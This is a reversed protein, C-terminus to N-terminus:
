RIIMDQGPTWDRKSLRNAASAMEAFTRKQGSQVLHAVAAHRATIWQTEAVQRPLENAVHRDTVCSQNHNKGSKRACGYTASWILMASLCIDDHSIGDIQVLKLRIDNALKSLDIGQRDKGIVPLIASFSQEVGSTTSGMCLAYRCIVHSLQKTQHDVNAVRYNRVSLISSRWSSLNDTGSSFRKVALPKFDAFELFLQNYDLEFVTSIQQLSERVFSQQGVLKLDFAGFATLIEWSPFEASISELVLRVWAVMRSLCRDIIEPQLRNGGFVRMEKKGHLAIARPRRMEQIAYETYTGVLSLCHRKTFLLDIRHLYKSIVEPVAAVDYNEQDFFRVVVASEDGADALMAITLFDEETVGELFDMALNRRENKRPVSIEVATALLADFTLVFRGLPRQTSQFRHKAHNLDKLRLCDIKSQDNARVRENFMTRVNDSDAILKTISTTGSILKVITASLFPDALWPKKALRHSDVPMRSLM